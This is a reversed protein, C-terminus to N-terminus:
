PMRWLVVVASLVLSWMAFNIGLLSWLLFADHETRSWPRRPARRAREHDLDYLIM